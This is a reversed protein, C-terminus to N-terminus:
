RKRRRRLLAVGAMMALFCGTPEPVVNPGNSSTFKLGNWLNFDAVDVVGDANFDGSSFADNSTFKNGNWTNFDTVDVVGDLNGDAGLFPNGGTVVSNEVGADALWQQLDTNDVLSDGNIDFLLEPLGGNKVAVIAASLADVDDQNCEGDRDFDCGAIPTGVFRRIWGDKKSSIYVEGNNDIGFRMDTRSQTSNGSADQILELLTTPQGNADVFQLQQVPALFGDNMSEWDTFDDRTQLQDVDVVYVQGEGDSGFNGFIYKGSLESAQSGRYVYGGAIAASIQGTNAFDHDYQAVPYTYPDNVHDAPLEAASIPNDPLKGTVDFTGERFSWGYNSGAIGLNVEEINSQGIDAILMAGDGGRDWGFHHPNRLGYAWIEPEFGASSVFPNDAPVTYPNGDNELPNIRLISGLFNSTDQGNPNLTLDSGGIAPSRYNGGDGFSIYLNGYDADLPTVNPNFGIKGINHDGRPQSQTLIDRRSGAMPIGSADLTWESVVSLHSENANTEIEHATYFKRFGDAGPNLSDPHFAFGRLGSQGDGNKFDPINSRFDFLALASGGPTYEYFRGRQDAVYLTDSGNPAAAIQEIRAYRNSGSGSNPLRVVEELQVTFTTTPMVASIPNAAPLQGSLQRSTLVTLVLGIYIDWKLTTSKNM